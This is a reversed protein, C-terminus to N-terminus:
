YFFSYIKNFFIPKVKREFGWYINNGVSKTSESKYILNFDNAKLISIVQNIDFESNLFTNNPNDPVTSTFLVGDFAEHQIICEKKHSDCTFEYDKIFM